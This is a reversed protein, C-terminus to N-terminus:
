VVANRSRAFPGKGNEEAFLILTISPSAAKGGPLIWDITWEDWCGPLRKMLRSMDRFGVAGADKRTVLMLRRLKRAM